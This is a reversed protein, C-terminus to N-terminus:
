KSADRVGNGNADAFVTGHVVAQQSCVTRPLATLALVGLTATVLAGLRVASAEIM